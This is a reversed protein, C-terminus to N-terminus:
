RLPNSNGDTPQRSVQSNAADSAATPAPRPTGPAPAPESSGPKNDERPSPKAIEKAKKEAERCAECLPICKFGETKTVVEKKILVRKYRVCPECAPCTQCADHRCRFPNPCSKVCFPVLRTSYTWRKTTKTDPVVVCEDCACMQSGCGSCLCGPAGNGCAPEGALSVLHTMAPIGCAAAILAVAAILRRFSISHPM